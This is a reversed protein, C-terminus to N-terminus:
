LHSISLELKSKLDKFRNRLTMETVGAAQAIDNQTKNKEGTKLCSLYLITAALGMPNKGASLLLIEDKKRVENMISIAQRKTKESLNAINAVKAICKMQDVLPVKLDLEVLLLRYAKALHKRKINSASAIDRLTRPIGIERCAIYASAALLATITRGRVLGRKQVKRYIYATKEVVADPLALKDSLVDLENFAQMLNIATATHSQTRLDWTRLRKITSYLSADLRHGAGDKNTKGIISYLGRDYRSLSTPNGTRRHKDNIQLTDFAATACWEPRTIDQTNDSIIMGCKKCIIEGREPDTIIRLDSKCLSCLPSPIQM